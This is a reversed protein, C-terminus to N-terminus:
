EDNVGKAAQAILRAIIEDELQVRDFGVSIMADRKVIHSRLRKLEDKTISITVLIIDSVM